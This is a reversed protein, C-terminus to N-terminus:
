LNLNSNVFHLLFKTKFCIFAESIQQQEASERMEREGKCNPNSVKVIMYHKMTSNVRPLQLPKTVTLKSRVPQTVLIAITGVTSSSIILSRALAQTGLRQMSSLKKQLRRLNKESSIPSTKNFFSCPILAGSFKKALCKMIKM